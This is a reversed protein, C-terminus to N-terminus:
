VNKIFRRPIRKGLLCLLENPITGIQQALHTINLYDFGGGYLTVEDEIGINPVNTVDLMTQDMCVRGVIPVRFGNVCAEGTNSFLRPYGDGYGIPITAIISKEKTKYTRGYSITTGSPVEKLFVVRTKLTLAEKLGINCNMPSHLGYIMLGPRVADFHSEPYRLIGSSNAMHLLPKNDLIKYITKALENTLAIQNRTYTTDEEDSSPMHTFIGTIKINPLSSYYKIDDICNNYDLGIRGMGTDIKIHVEANKNLKVAAKSLSDALQKDCLTLTISNEIAVEAFHPLTCGLVMISADLGALRLELAEEMSSVALMDAGADILVKSVDIAGHGYGDAKVAPFIKVNNGVLKKIVKFNSEIASFNIEIWTPRM